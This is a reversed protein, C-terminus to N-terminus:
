RREKLSYCFAGLKRLDEDKRKRVNIRNSKIFAALEKKQDKQLTKNFSSKGTIRIWVGNSLIFQVDDEVYDIRSGEIREVKRRKVLVAFQNKEFLVEFYSGIGTRIGEDYKKFHHHYLDFSDVLKNNLKIFFVNNITVCKYVLVDSYADYLLDINRYLDNDYRVFSRDSEPSQYFPHSKFGKFPIHYAPGNVLAGNEQSVIKDFWVEASDATALTPYRNQQAVTVIGLCVFVVSLILRSFVVARDSLDRCSSM